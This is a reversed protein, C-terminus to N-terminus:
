NLVILLFNIVHKYYINLINKKLVDIKCILICSM